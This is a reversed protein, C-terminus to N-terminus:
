AVGVSPTTYEQVCNKGNLKAKRLATEAYDVVTTPRVQNMVTPSFVGLSATVNVSRGGAILVMHSIAVRLREALLVAGEGTTEPLLLCFKDAGYRAATDIERLSKSIVVAIQRLVADGEEHGYSENLEKFGDLDLMVCAFPAGYRKARLCEGALVETFHQRNFLGTLPDSAARKDADENFTGSDNAM